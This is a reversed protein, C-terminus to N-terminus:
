CIIFLKSFMTFLVFYKVTCKKNNKIVSLQECGNNTKYTNIQIVVWIKKYDEM